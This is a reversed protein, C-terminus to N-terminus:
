RRVGSSLVLGHISKSSRDYQPLPPVGIKHWKCLHVRISVHHSEKRAPLSKFLRATGHFAKTRFDVLPPPPKPNDLDIAIERSEGPQRLRLKLRIENGAHFNSPAQALFIPPPTDGVGCGPLSLYMRSVDQFEFPQNGKRGHHIFPGAPKHLPQIKLTIWIAIKQMGVDFFSM